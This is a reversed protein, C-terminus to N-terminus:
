DLVGVKPTEVVEYFLVSFALVNKVLRLRQFLCFSLCLIGGPIGPDASYVWYLPMITKAAM